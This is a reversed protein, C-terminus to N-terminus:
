VATNEAFQKFLAMNGLTEQRFAAVTDEDADNMAAMEGSFEFTNDAVWRTQSPSVEHFENHMWNKAGATEYLSSFKHPLHRELITETMEVAHGNQDYVLRTQADKEGATGSIHEMKQLGNQWKFLNQPDDFLAAVQARPLDITIECTYKIM